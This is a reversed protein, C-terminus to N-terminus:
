QRSGFARKTVAGIRAAALTFSIMTSSQASSYPSICDMGTVQLELASQALRWRGAVSAQLLIYKIIIILYVDIMVMM